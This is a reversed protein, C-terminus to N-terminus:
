TTCLIKTGNNINSKIIEFFSFIPYLPLNTVDWHTDIRIELMEQSLM